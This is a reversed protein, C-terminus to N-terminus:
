LLTNATGGDVLIAQGTIFGAHDSALFAITAALEEPKGLRGAPTGAIWGAYVSERTVGTRKVNAAALDELTEVLVLSVGANTLAHQYGNAHSKQLIVESKMGTGQLFPLQAAKKPDKGTLVGATGLVMASWCGATVFAAEAHCIEAIKEGVKDQVEDLM